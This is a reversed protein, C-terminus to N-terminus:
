NIKRIIEDIRDYLEQLSGNNEIVFDWETDPLIDLENESIHESKYVLDTNIKRNIKVCKWGNKKLEYFENKFRVDSCYYNENESTVEKLAQKVFIDSDQNRAWETGVWQLFKRDKILPFDLRNQAYYLIDYIPDAFTIKKGGYKRQLYEVSTDKGSRAKYGFAIKM